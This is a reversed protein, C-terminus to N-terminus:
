EHMDCATIEIRGAVVDFCGFDGELTLRDTSINGGEIEGLCARGDHTHLGARFSVYHFSVQVDNVGLAVADIRIKKGEVTLINIAAYSRNDEWDISLLYGNIM